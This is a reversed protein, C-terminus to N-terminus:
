VVRRLRTGRPPRGALKHALDELPVAGAYRGIMGDTTWGMIQKIESDQLKKRLRATRTGRNRSAQYKITPDVLAVREKFRRRMSTWGSYKYADGDRTLFLPENERDEGVYAPREMELYTRMAIVQRAELPVKRAGAETKTNEEGIEIYGVENSRKPLHVDRLRLTMVEFGARLGLEDILHAANHFHPRTPHSSAAHRISALEDDRYIPRGKVKMAPIALEFVVSVPFRQDGFYWKRKTALWTGVARAGIAKGRADYVHQAQVDKIVKEVNETTFDALTLPGRRSARAKRAEDRLKADLRDHLVHLHSKRPQFTSPRLTSEVDALYDAFVLELPTTPALMPKTPMTTPVRPRRSRVRQKGAEQILSAHVLRM